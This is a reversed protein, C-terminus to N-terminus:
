GGLDVIFDRIVKKEDIPDIQINGAVSTTCAMVNKGNVKVPCAKCNGRRCCSYFGLSSDIKDFIYELVNLVSAEGNLPVKYTEYRSKTDLNPHYRFCKVRIVRKEPM